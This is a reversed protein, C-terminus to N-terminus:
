IRGQSPWGRNTELRGGPRSGHLPASLLPGQPRSGVPGVGQPLTWPFFRARQPPPLHTPPHSLHPPPPRPPLGGADGPRGRVRAQRAAGIDSQLGLSQRGRYGSRPRCECRSGGCGPHRPRVGVRCRRVSPSPAPRCRLHRVLPVVHDGQWRVLHDFRNCTAYRARRAAHVVTARGGDFHPEERAWSRSSMHPFM